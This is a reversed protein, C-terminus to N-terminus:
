RAKQGAQPHKRGRGQWGDSRAVFSEDFLAQGSQEDLLPPRLNWPSRNRFPVVMELDREGLLLALLRDFGLANGCCPPIKKGMATLFEEDMPIPEHGAKSRADSAEKLRTRNEREGLLELFGNCLEVRGVYIEFRKAVGKEVKALAAQSPPYDMLVAGGMRALAPEICDILIKFFATEFSDSAQVSRHGAAHARAALQPDQDVLDLGAFETFADSVTWREFQKPLRGRTGGLKDACEHLLTITESIFGNFSVGCRYWELMTFEPHHWPTFEGGNRYCPGLSFVRRAGAGLAQKLHLEPSSRLFLRADRGTIDRWTTSFYQLHVETGPATVLTPTDLELYKRRRFSARLIEALRARKTWFELQRQEPSKRSKM